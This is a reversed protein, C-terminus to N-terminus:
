KTVRMQSLDITSSKGVGVMRHEVMSLQLGMEGCFSSSNQYIM